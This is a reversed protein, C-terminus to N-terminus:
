LAPIVRGRGSRLGEFRRFYGLYGFGREPRRSDPVGMSPVGV